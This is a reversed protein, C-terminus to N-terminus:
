TRPFLTVVVADDFGQQLLPFPRGNDYSAFGKKKASKLTGVIVCDVHQYHDFIAGFTCTWNGTSDDYSAGACKPIEVYLQDIKGRAWAQAKLMREYGPTGKKPRGGSQARPRSETANKDFKNSFPNYKQEENAQKQKQNWMNARSAISSSAPVKKQPTTKAPPPTPTPPVPPPNQVPPPPPPALVEPPDVTEKNPIFVPPTIVFEPPGEDIISSPPGVTDVSARRDEEQEPLNVPPATPPEFVPPEMGPEPQPPPVPNSPPQLKPPARPQPPPNRVEPPPTPPTPRPPAPAPEPEVNSAPAVSDNSSGDNEELLQILKGKNWSPPPIGRSSLMDRLQKASMTSYNTGDSAKAVPKPKPVPKAKPAPKPRTAPKPKAVPKPQPKRSVPAPTPEPAPAAGGGLAKEVDALLTKRNWTTVPAGLGKLADRLEKASMRNYETMDVSSSPASKSSAPVNRSPPAKSPPARSPPARAPPARAPPATRAPPTAKAVPKPAPANKQTEAQCILDILQKKNWTNVELGQKQAIGRLQKATMKQLMEVMKTDVSGQNEPATQNKVRSMDPAKPLPKTPATPGGGRYLASKQAVNSPGPKGVRKKRKAPHRDEMGLLANHYDGDRVDQRVHTSSDDLDFHTLRDMQAEVDQRSDTIFVQCDKPVGNQELTGDTLEIDFLTLELYQVPIKTPASLSQKLMSIQVNMSAEFVFTHQARPQIFICEFKITEQQTQRAPQSRKKRTTRKVTKTEPEFASPDADRFRALADANLKVM